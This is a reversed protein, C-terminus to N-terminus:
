LSIQNANEELSFFSSNKKRLFCVCFFSNGNRRFFHCQSNEKKKCLLSEKIYGSHFIFFNAVFFQNNWWRFLTISRNITDLHNFFLYFFIFSFFCDFNKCLDHTHKSNILKFFFSLWFRNDYHFIQMKERMELETKKRYNILFLSFVECWQENM